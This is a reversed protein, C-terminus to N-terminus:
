WLARALIIAAFGCIALGSAVNVGRLVGPSLRARWGAAVGSLILWWLTSGSFAGAGLLFAPARSGGLPPTPYFPHSGRVWALGAYAAAFSLITMPNTLTLALTSLYAPTLRSSGGTLRTAPAAHTGAGPPDSEGAAPVPRSRLSSLGLWGLWLSGPISFWAAHNTLFSEILGVGLGAVAAYCGDATAAGLGSAFGYSWGRALTRSLCLLGIPGVPAAVLFGLALGTWFWHLM